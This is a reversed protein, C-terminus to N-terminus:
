CANNNQTKNKFLSYVIFIFINFLINLFSKLAKFLCMKQKKYEREQFLRRFSLCLQIQCLMWSAHITQKIVLAFLLAAANNITVKTERKERKPKYRNRIRSMKLSCDLSRCKLCKRVNERAKWNAILFFARHFCVRSFSYNFARAFSCHM